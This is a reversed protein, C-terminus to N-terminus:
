NGKSGKSKGRVPRKDQWNLKRICEQVRSTSCGVMEAVERYPLQERICKQYLWNLNRLLPYQTRPPSRFGHKRRIDYVRRPTVNCQEAIQKATLNGAQLAEIIEGEKSKKKRRLHQWRLERTRQQVRQRSCGVLDAVEQHTRQEEILKQYLWGEDYLLSYPKSKWPTLGYKRCVYDVTQETTHCQEAAEKRTVNGSQLVEIIQRHLPKIKKRLSIGYRSAIIRIESVPLKYKEAVDFSSYCDDKLDRIIKDLQRKPIHCSM